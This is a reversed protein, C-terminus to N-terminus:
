VDLGISRMLELANSHDVVGARLLYDFVLRGDELRDAFHVNAGRPALVDAIHALALDHTTVLGIAGREVLGRVIAEAGIKRDHSNTGHLFEDLLFLVPVPGRTLDVIQRLRTIEAYFRSTGGQLSDMVRISAGPQLPSLRLRRARVPAGAQALVVNVGLTRLLTSKGSMNSGSVVLARLDDGLRVDNCVARDGPLLPHAVAECDLCPSDGTFDPFPDAPHEYAYGALSCLAEMEGVAALWRRVAPGSRARWAEVAFALHVTYLVFPGVVRVVVNDRSDLLEMLRNLRAIRRSPLAGEVDLEARLLVLRPSRFNERELRRLVHSLIVLDQAAGEVDAVVRGIRRRVHLTYAAVLVAVVLFVDRQGWVAWVAATLVALSALVLAAARERRSRLVPPAEGWAALADPHVASRVEEALVALDERLDLLPTLERVASQRELVTPLAGPARLWAALTDEGMRTRATSLLEFLSGRGFLDLDEAYPHSPDSYRDGPEGAGAWHHDLRALARECYEVARAAVARRRLVRDHAVALAAFVAVPALLWWGAMANRGVALWVMVAAAVAVLLRANGLRRHRREHREVEARRAELRSAYEAHPGEPHLTPSM